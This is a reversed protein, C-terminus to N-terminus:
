EHESNFFRGTRMGAVPGSKIFIDASIRSVQSFLRIKRSTHFLGTLIRRGKKKMSM